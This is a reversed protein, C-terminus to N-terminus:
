AARWQRNCSECRYLRMVNEDILKGVTNGAVAGSAAGVLIGLIGGVVTGLGPCILSGVAAGTKGCTAAAVYGGAGAGILTT